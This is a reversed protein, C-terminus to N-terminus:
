KGHNYKNDNMTNNLESEKMSYFEESEPIIRQPLDGSGAARIVSDIYSSLSSRKEGAKVKIDSYDLRAREVTYHPQLKSVEDVPMLKSHGTLFGASATYFCLGISAATFIILYLRLQSPSLNKSIRNMKSVWWGRVKLYFSAQGGAQKQKRFISKM